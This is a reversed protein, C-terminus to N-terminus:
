EAAPLWINFTTRGPQSEAWIQGQHETIIAKCIDLGLGTGEGIPKTTFFPDFIKDLNENAIGCGDDSFQILAGEGDVKTVIHLTGKGKMAQVANTILNQWVQHIKDVDVYVSPTSPDFHREVNIGHKIVNQNLTLVTDLENHISVKTREHEHKGRAYYKLALVMKSARQVASLINNMLRRKSIQQYLLEFLAAGRPYKLLPIIEELSEHLGSNIIDEALHAANELHEAELQARLSKKLHRREKAPMLILNPHPKFEILTFFSQRMPESLSALLHYMYSESQHFMDMSEASAQIAGLPTNVEHAVGAILQGLAAMKEKNVLANQTQDLRLATHQLAEATQNVRQQLLGLDGHLQTEIRASYDGQIISDLVGSISYIAENLSSMLHNFAGEVSKQDLIKDGYEAEQEDLGNLINLGEYAALSLHFRQQRYVEILAGTVLSDEYFRFSLDAIIVSLSIMELFIFTLQLIIMNPSTHLSTGDFSEFAILPIGFIEVGTIQWYNFALHHASIVLTGAILPLPDKYRTLLALALFIHFHIESLGMQQQIFLASFAMFAVGIIMRSLISGPRILVPILATITILGGGVFGLIYTEYQIANITSAIVWHFIILVMMLRDARKFDEHYALAVKPSLQDSQSLFARQVTSLLNVSM